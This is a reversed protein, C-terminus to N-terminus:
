ETKEEWELLDGIAIGFFFIARLTAVRQKDTMRQLFALLIANIVPNFDLPLKYYTRGVRKMAEAITEVYGPKPVIGCQYFITEVQIETEGKKKKPSPLLKQPEIGDLNLKEIFDQWREM